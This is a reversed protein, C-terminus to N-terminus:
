SKVKKKVKVKKMKAKLATEQKKLEDMRADYEKIMKDYAGRSITGEKFYKIAAERKLRPIEKMERQIDRLKGVRMKGRAAYASAIGVAFIASLMAWWYRALFGPVEVPTVDIISTRSGSNGYSDSATVAMSWAGIDQSGLAHSARYIGNEEHVLVLNEGTPTNIKVSANEIPEGTPYIIKARVVVNEGVEFRTRTPSLLSVGLTASVIKVNIWSGGAKFTGDATKTGEVSISWDGTPNGWGIAYTRSYTGPAINDLVINEGTPTNSTVKANEINAGGETVKVSVIINEGRSHTSGSVPSTFAVTYYVKGPPIAVSINKTNDGMNGLNDSASVAVTWTGTGTTPPNGFSIYYNYSYAGNSIPVKFEASRWTGSSLRITATGSAVLNNEPGRVNEGSIRITQGKEYSVKDTKLDM